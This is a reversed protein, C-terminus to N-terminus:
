FPIRLKVEEGIELVERWLKKRHVNMEEFFEPRSLNFSPNNEHLLKYQINKHYEITELVKDIYRLYYRIFFYHQIHNDLLIIKLPNFSSKLYDSKAKLKLFNNRVAFYNKRYVKKNFYNLFSFENRNIKKLLRGYETIIKQCERVLKEYEKVKENLDSM